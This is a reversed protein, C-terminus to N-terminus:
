TGKKEVLTKKIFATLENLAEGREVQRQPNMLHPIQRLGLTIRGESGLWDSQVQNLKEVTDAQSVAQLFEEKMRDVMSDTPKPAICGPFIPPVPEHPAEKPASNMLVRGEEGSIGYIFVWLMPDRQLTIPFKSAKMFEMLRDLSFPEDWTLGGGTLTSYPETNWTTVRMIM